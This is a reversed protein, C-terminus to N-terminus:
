THSPLAPRSSSSATKAAAAAAAFVGHVVLLGLSCGAVVDYWHHRHDLVRSAMVALALCPCWWLRAWFDRPSRTAVHSHAWKVLYAAACTIISSHGSPTSKLGEILFRFDPQTCTASITSTGPSDAASRAAPQCRAIFDPRFNSIRFKLVNTTMATIGLCVWFLAMACHFRHASRHIWPFREFRNTPSRRKWDTEPSLCYALCMLLPVLVALAMCMGGSVLENDVYSLSIASNALSFPKQVDPM